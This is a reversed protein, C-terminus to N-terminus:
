PRPHAGAYAVARTQSAYTPLPHPGAHSGPSAPAHAAPSSAATYAASPPDPASPTHRSADELSTINPFDCSAATTTATERTGAPLSSLALTSVAESPQCLFSM